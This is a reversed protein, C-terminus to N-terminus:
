AAFYRGPTTGFQRRFLAIFSSPNEFGVSFAADGVAMGDAIREMAFMLRLQQTWAGVSFGTEAVFLRELTRQSVGVARAIETLSRREAPNAYYIASLRRARPDAPEPLHVPEQDVTAIQECLVRALRANASDDAYTWPAEVAAIILERVIASVRLVAIKARAPIWPTAENLYLTRLEVPKRLTLAHPKHGPIWLARNPPLM